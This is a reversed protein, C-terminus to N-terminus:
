QCPAVHIVGGRPRQSHKLVGGVFCRQVFQAPACGATRGGRGAVCQDRRTRPKRRRGEIVVDDRRGQCPGM